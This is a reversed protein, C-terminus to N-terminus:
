NGITTKQEKTTPSASEEVYVTLAVNRHCKCPCIVLHPVTAINNVYGKLRQITASDSVSNKLSQVTADSVLNTCLPYTMWHWPTKVWAKWWAPKTCECVSPGGCTDPGSKRKSLMVKLKSSSM